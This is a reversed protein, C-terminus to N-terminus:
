DSLKIQSKLGELIESRHNVLTSMHAERPYFTADRKPLRGAVARATAVPVQDDLEGHWLKVPFEIDELAFGWPRGLLAGEYAAGKSGQRLGDVLSAAMMQRLRPDDLLRRDPGPWRRGAAALTREARAQNGMLRRTLPLLLWPLTRAMLSLLASLPGVGSVVGCGTLRDPISYGCALAYPGGASFGIVGFSGIALHNALEVVDDPWDLMRRHPQFTSLGMGPRDIGLLRIGQEAAEGQLLGGELRSDPHGPFLFIPRGGGEGYEAYGLIRGDRLRITLDTLAPAVAPGTM